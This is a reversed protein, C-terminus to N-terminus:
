KNKFTRIEIFAGIMSSVQVKENSGQSLRYEIEALRSVLYIKMEDTYKTKMISKHLESMIDELALSKVTKINLIATMAENFRDQNLSAYILDMDTPSPRGTVDYVDQLTIHKHALSCSELVNLVKRMDGGSLMVIANAANEDLQLNELAAIESM